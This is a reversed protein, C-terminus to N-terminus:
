DGRYHVCSCYSVREGSSYYFAKLEVINPHRVIRMIQLERNQPLKTATGEDAKALPLTWHTESFVYKSDSIRSCVNSPLM